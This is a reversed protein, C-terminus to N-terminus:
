CPPGQLFWVEFTDIRHCKALCDSLSRGINVALNVPLNTIM